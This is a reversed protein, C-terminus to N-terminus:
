TMKRWTKGLMMAGGIGIVTLALWSDKMMKMMRM